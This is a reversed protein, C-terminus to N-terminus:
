PIWHGFATCPPFKGGPWTAHEASRVLPGGMGLRQGSCRKVGIFVMTSGGASLTFFTLNLGGGGLPRGFEIKTSYLPLHPESPRLVEWRTPLGQLLEFASARSSDIQTRHLKRLELETSHPLETLIRLIRLIRISLWSELGEPTDPGRSTPIGV